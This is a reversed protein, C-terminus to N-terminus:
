RNRPDPRPPPAPKPPVQGKKQTLGISKVTVDMPPSDCHLKPKVREWQADTLPRADRDSMAAKTIAADEQVTPMILVRGSKTKVKISM